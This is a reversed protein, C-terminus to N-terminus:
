DGLRVPPYMEDIEDQTYAYVIGTTWESAGDEDNIDIREQKLQAIANNYKALWRNIYGEGFADSDYDEPLTFHYCALYSIIRVDDKILSTDIATQASDKALAYSSFNNETIEGTDEDEVILGLNRKMQTLVEAQTPATM